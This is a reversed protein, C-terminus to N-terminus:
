WHGRYFVLLLPAGRLGALHVAHSDPAALIFDAPTSGIAPGAAIPVRSMGFLVWAFWAAMGLNLGALVGAMRRKGRRARMVGLLSCVLGAAVVLLNPIADNRVGALRGGAFLVVVFYGVVGTLGLLLGWLPAWNRTM